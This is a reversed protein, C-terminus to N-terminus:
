NYNYISRDFHQICNEYGKDNPVTYTKIKNKQMEICVGCYYTLDNRDDPWVKQFHRFFLEKKWNLDM